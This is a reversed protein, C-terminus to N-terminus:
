VYGLQQAAKDLYSRVLGPAGSALRRLEKEKLRHGYGHTHLHRYALLEGLSEFEDRNVFNERLAIVLLEKHWSEGRPM